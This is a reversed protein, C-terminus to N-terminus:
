LNKLGCRGMSLASSGRDAVAGDDAMHKPTYSSAITQLGVADGDVGSERRFLDTTYAADLELSQFGSDFTDVFFTSASPALTTTTSNHDNSRASNDSGRETYRGNDHECDDNDHNGPGDCGGSFRGSHRGFNRAYIRKPEDRDCHRSTDDRYRKNIGARVREHSRRGQSCAVSTSNCRLWQFAYSQVPGDWAGVNATLTQDEAPKGNITPLSTVSPTLQGTAPKTGGGTWEGSRCWREDGDRRLDHGRCSCSRAPSSPM